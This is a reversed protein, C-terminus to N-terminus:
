NEYDPTEGRKYIEDSIKVKKHLNLYGLISFFGGITMSPVFILKMYEALERKKNIFEKFQSNKELDRIDEKAEVIIKDLTAKHNETSNKLENKDDYAIDYIPLSNRDNTLRELTAQAQQHQQMIAPPSPYHNLVGLSILGTMIAGCAIKMHRMSSTHYSKYKQQLEETSPISNIRSSFLKLTM